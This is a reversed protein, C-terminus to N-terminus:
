IGVEVVTSSYWIKNFADVISGVTLNIRWDYDVTRTGLRDFFPM